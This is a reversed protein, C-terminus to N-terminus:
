PYRQRQPNIERDLAELRRVRDETPPHTSLIRNRFKKRGTGFPNVIMLPAASTGGTEYSNSSGACWDDLKVLASALALPKRTLRASSEDAGYERSRSIGFMLIASAGPVALYTITGTIIIPIMIAFLILILLGGGGDNKRGSTSAGASGLVVGAALAAFGMIKSFATLAYASNRATGNVITDRHIIHSLEHGLVGELEDDDLIDLLPKTVAVLAKDPTRGLAFANPYDTDCVYMTPMPTDSEECLKRVARYMRPCSYRDVQAAGMDKLVPEVPALMCYTGIIAAISVALLACNLWNLQHFLFGYVYGFLAGVMAFLTVFMSFMALTTFPWDGTGNGRGRAALSLAAFFIISGALVTIFLTGPDM